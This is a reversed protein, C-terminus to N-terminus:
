RRKVDPSGASLATTSLSWLFVSSWAEILAIMLLLIVTVETCSSLICVISLYVSEVSLASSWAQIPAIMLMMVMM